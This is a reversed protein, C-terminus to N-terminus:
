VPSTVVHITSLQRPAQTLVVTLSVTQGDAVRVGTLEASRFGVRRATIVYLGPTLPALHFRGASETLAYRLITRDAREAHVSVSARPKGDDGVVVGAISSQASSTAPLAALLLFHTLRM